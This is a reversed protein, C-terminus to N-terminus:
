RNIKRAARDNERKAQALLRGQEKESLKDWPRKLPLETESKPLPRATSMPTGQSMSVSTKRTRSVAKIVKPEVQTTVVEGWREKKTMFKGRQSTHINGHKYRRTMIQGCKQYEEDVSEKNSNTM